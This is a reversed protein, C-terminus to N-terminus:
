CIWCSRQSAASSIGSPLLWWRHIEIADLRWYTEQKKAKRLWADFFGTVLLQKLLHRLRDLLLNGLPRGEGGFLALGETLASGFAVFLWERLQAGRSQYYLLMFMVIVM